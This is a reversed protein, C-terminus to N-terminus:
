LCLSLAEERLKFPILHAILSAREFIHLFMLLMSGKARASSDPARRPPPPEALRLPSLRGALSEHIERPTTLIYPPM